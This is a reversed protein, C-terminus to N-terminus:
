LHVHREVITADGFDIQVIRTGCAARLRALDAPLGPTVDQLLAEVAPAALLIEVEVGEAPVTAFTLFRDGRRVAEVDRATPAPLAQGAVRIERVGAAAPVVLRMRTAGRPSRLRLTLRRDSGEAVQRVVTADPPAAALPKAPTEFAGRRPWPWGGPKTPAFPAAAALAEPLAGRLGQVLVRATGHDGDDVLQLNAGAPRDDSRTPVLLAAGLAALLLAFTAFVAGRAAALEGLLSTVVFAVLV